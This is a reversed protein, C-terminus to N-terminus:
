SRLRPESSREGACRRPVSYASPGPSWNIERQFSRAARVPRQQDRCVGAPTDDRRRQQMVDGTRGAANKPLVVWGPGVAM